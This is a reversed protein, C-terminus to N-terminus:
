KALALNIFEKKKEGPPKDMLAQIKGQLRAVLDDHDHGMRRKEEKIEDHRDNIQQIERDKSKILNGLKEIEENKSRLLQEYKNILAEFEKTKAKNTESISVESKERRKSGLDFSSSLKAERRKAGRSVALRGDLRNIRERNKNNKGEINLMVREINEM